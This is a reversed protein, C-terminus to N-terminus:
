FRRPTTAATQSRRPTTKGTGAHSRRHLFDIFQGTQFASEEARANEEFAEYKVPGTLVARTRSFAMPSAGGLKGRGLIVNQSVMDSIEGDSLEFLFDCPFRDRNRRVAQKLARTEVGYLEALDYDLLVKQERVLLIRREAQVSLIDPKQSKSSPPMVADVLSLLKRKSPWDRRGGAAIRFSTGIRRVEPNNM